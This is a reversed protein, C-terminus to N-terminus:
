RSVPSEITENSGSWSGGPPESPDDYRALRPPRTAPVAAATARSRASGIALTLLLVPLALLDRPDQTLAVPEIGAADHGVAWSVAALPAQLAGLGFRYADGGLSTTQTLAFVAATAGTATILLPNSPGRYAGGARLMLEVISVLLLPFFLLGAVDSLHGTLPHGWHDKLLHDNVLLLGIALLPVPHLLAGGADSRGQPNM